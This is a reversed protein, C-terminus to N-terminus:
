RYRDFGRLSTTIRRRRRRTSKAIATGCKCGMILFAAIIGSTKIWGLTKRAISIDVSEAAHIDVSTVEEGNVSAAMTGLKVGKTIPAEVNNLKIHTTIKAGTKPVVVRLETSPIVAVTEKNGGKVAANACVTKAQAITVPEYNNFVYNMLIATDNGANNSKLVTSIIRWSDQTASGVYCYGAQKIYGSKIGDAGPYDNMFKSRAFVALDDKNMTRSSLIYKRTNVVENFLPYKIAHKAMLCLDYATSYHNKDHLGNPTVFHTDKCGLELARKNMLSAFKGVSGSIHEAAAVAADNASRIMLGYLLDQVSIQEGPKLHLSTYPTLSAKKSATVINSMGCNEIMLIATMIKTTSANPLRTNPKKSYLVQGSVPDMVVASAAKIQPKPSISSASPPVDVVPGNEIVQPGIGDKAFAQASLALAIAAMFVAFYVRINRKYHM